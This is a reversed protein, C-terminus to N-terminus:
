PDVQSFCHHPNIPSSKLPIHKKQYFAFIHILISPFADINNQSATVQKQIFPHSYLNIQILDPHFILLKGTQIHKKTKVLIHANVIFM